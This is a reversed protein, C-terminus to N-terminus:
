RAPAAVSVRADGYWQPRLRPRGHRGRAVAVARLRGRPDAGAAPARRAGPGGGSQRRAAAPRRAGPARQRGAAPGGHDGRGDGDRDRLAGAAAVADAAEPQGARQGRRGRDAPDGAATGRLGRGAAGRPQVPRAPQHGGGLRAAPDGADLAARSRRRQWRRAGPVAGPGRAGRPRAVPLAPVVPGVAPRWPLRLRHDHRGGAVARPPVPEDHLLRRGRSRGGLVVLRGPPPGAAASM